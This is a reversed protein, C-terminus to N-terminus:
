TTRVGRRKRPIRFGNAKMIPSVVVLDFIEAIREVSLPRKSRLWWDLLELTGGVILVVGCDMPVKEDSEVMPIAAARALRLFEERIIGAAGGTLLTAWMMRHEDVHAFMAEAAARLERSGFTRLALETVATIREAAVEELLSEKTPHHRFFTTYGVRAQAVLDRITIESFPREDLLTLMAAHLAERSRLTRPDTSISM